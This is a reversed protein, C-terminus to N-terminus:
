RAIPVPYKRLVYEYGKKIEKHFLKPEIYEWRDRITKIPVLAIADYYPAHELVRAIAWDQTLWGNRKETNNLIAFFDEPSLTYDWVLQKFKEPHNRYSQQLTNMVQLYVM